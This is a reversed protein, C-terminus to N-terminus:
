DAPDQKKDGDQVMKKYRLDVQVEDTVPRVHRVYRNKIRQRYDELRDAKIEKDVAFSMFPKGNKVITAQLVKYM